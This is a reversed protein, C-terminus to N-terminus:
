LCHHKRGIENTKQRNRITSAFAFFSIECKGCGSPKRFVSRNKFCKRQTKRSKYSFNGSKKLFDVCQFSSFVSRHKQFVSLNGQHTRQKWRYSWRFRQRTWRNIQN